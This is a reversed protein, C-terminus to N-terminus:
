KRRRWGLLFLGALMALGAGNPANDDVRCRSESKPPEKGETKTEAPETGSDSVPEAGGDGGLLPPGDHPQSGPAKCVVCPEEIAKPPSGGSYDLRNCIAEGCTGLQNNPLSCADGSARGSCAEQEPGSGGSPPAAAAPGAFGLLSVFLSAALTFTRDAM